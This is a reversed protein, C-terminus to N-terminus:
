FRLDLGVAYTKDVSAVTNIKQDGRTKLSAYYSFIRAAESLNYDVGIAAADTDVDAFAASPTSTAQAVQVKAVWPGAIKW